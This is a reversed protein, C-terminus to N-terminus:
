GQAGDGSGRPGSALGSAHEGCCRRHASDGSRRWPDGSRAARRRLAIRDATAHCWFHNGPRDGRRSASMILGQRVVLRLVTGTHAGLAVRIGIERTRQAVAYSLLGYLGVAALLLALGGFVESFAAGIRTGLMARGSRIHEDFSRVDFLPLTPDLSAVAGRVAASLSAPDVSTHVVLTFSSRYWQSYPRFLFPKPTEGLSFYQIDATVGVIEMVPGDKTVRFRKGVASQGPWIRKAMARTIMAVKPASADDREEFGRGEVIPIRMTAFYSPTV